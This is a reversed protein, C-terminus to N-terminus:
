DRLRHLKSRQRLFSNKAQQLVRLEQAAYKEDALLQGMPTTAQLQVQLDTLKCKDAEFQKETDSYKGRNLEKIKPKLRKLKRMLQFM